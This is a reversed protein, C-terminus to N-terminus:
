AEEDAARGADELRRLEADIVQVRSEAVDLMSRCATLLKVGREYASLQAELGIEGSEIAEITSEIEAMCADFDQPLSAQQDDASESSSHPM